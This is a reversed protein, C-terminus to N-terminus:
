NSFFYKSIDMNFRAKCIKKRHGRLGKDNGDLTFLVRIDIETYGNHMTFVEILDCRNRRELVNSHMKCVVATIWKNAAPQQSVCTSTKQQIASVLQHQVTPIMLWTQAWCECHKDVLKIGHKRSNDAFYTLKQTNKM